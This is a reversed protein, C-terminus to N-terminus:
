VWKVPIWWGDLREPYFFPYSPIFEEEWAATELWRRETGIRKPFLLFGSRVRTEYKKPYQKRM